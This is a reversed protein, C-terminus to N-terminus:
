HNSEGDQSEKIPPVTGLVMQLENQFDIEAWLEENLNSNLEAEYEDVAKRIATFQREDCSDHDIFERLFALLIIASYPDLNLNVQM